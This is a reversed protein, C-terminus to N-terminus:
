KSNVGFCARALRVIIFSGILNALFAILCTFSTIRFATQNTRRISFSSESTRAFWSVQLYITTAQLTSRLALGTFDVFLATYLTCDESVSYRNAATIFGIEFCVASAFLTALV